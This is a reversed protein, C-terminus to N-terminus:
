GVVGELWHALQSVWRGWWGCFTIALGFTAWISLILHLEGNETARFRRAVRGALWGAGAAVLAPLLLQTAAVLYGPGGKFHDVYCYAAGLVFLVAAPSIVAARHYAWEASPSAV